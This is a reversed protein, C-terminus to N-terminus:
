KQREILKQFRPDSHLIEYDPDDKLYKFHKLGKDFGSELHNIAKDIDDPQANPSKARMCYVSAYVTDVGCDWPRKLECKECFQFANTFDGLAAWAYAQSRLEGTEKITLKTASAYDDHSRSSDHKKAYLRGRKTLAYISDPEIELAKTVDVIAGDIDGSRDEAIARARFPAAAKGDLKIASNADDIAGAFDCRDLKIAARNVLSYWNGPELEIARALDHEASDVDGTQLYVYARGGYAFALQGDLETATTFESLAKGPEDMSMLETAHNAHYQACKPDLSIARADDAEAKDFERTRHYASARASYATALAAHARALNTDLEIAKCYDQISKDLAGM